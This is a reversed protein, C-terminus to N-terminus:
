SKLENLGTYVDVYQVLRITLSGMMFVLLLSGAEEQKTRSQVSQSNTVYFGFSPITKFADGYYGCLCENAREM